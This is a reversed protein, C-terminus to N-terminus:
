LKKWCLYFVFIYSIFVHYYLMYSEVSTGSSLVLTDHLFRKFVSFKRFFFISLSEVSIGSPSVVTDYVFRKSLSFNRLSAISRYKRMFITYDLYHQFSFLNIEQRSWPTNFTCTKKNKKIYIYLFVMKKAQAEIKKM